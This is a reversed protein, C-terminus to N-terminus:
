RSSGMKSWYLNAGGVGYETGTKNTEQDSFRTNLLGIRFYTLVHDTVMFGPIFSIGYSGDTRVGGMPPYGSEKYDRLYASGGGFIEAAVYFKQTLLAGFGLSLTGEIGIYSTPTGTYNVRPGLSLGLYPGSVYQYTPCPRPKEGKLDKVPKTSTTTTKTSVSKNSVTDMTKVPTANSSTNTNAATNTTAPTNTAATTNAVAANNTAAPNLAFATSASIAMIISPALLKNLKNLM